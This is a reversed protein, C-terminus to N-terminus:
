PFQAVEPNLNNMINHIICKAQATRTPYYDYPYAMIHYNPKLRYM